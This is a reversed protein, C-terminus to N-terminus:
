MKRGSAVIHCAPIFFLWDESILCTETEVTGDSGILDLHADSGLRIRLAM